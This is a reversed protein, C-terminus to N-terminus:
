DGIAREVSQFRRLTPRHARVMEAQPASAWRSISVPATDVTIWVPAPRYEFYEVARGRDGLTRRQATVSRECAELDVSLGVDFAVLVHCTGRVVRVDGRAM